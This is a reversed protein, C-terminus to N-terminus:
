ATIINPCSFERLVGLTMTVAAHASVQKCSCGATCLPHRLAGAVASEGRCGQRDTSGASCSGVGPLGRGPLRQRQQQGRQLDPEPQQRLLGGCFSLVPSQPAGGSAPLQHGGAAHCILELCVGASLVAQACASVLESEQHKTWAVSLAAYPAACERIAAMGCRSLACNDHTDISQLLSRPDLRSLATLSHEQSVVLQQTLGVRSRKIERKLGESWRTSIPEGAPVLLGFSHEVSARSVM